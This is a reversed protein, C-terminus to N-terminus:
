SLRGLNKVPVKERSNLGKGKGKGKGYHPIIVPTPVVVVQWNTVVFVVFVPAMPGVIIVGGTLGILDGVLGYIIPAVAGAGITGTISGTQQAVAPVALGVLLVAIWLNPRVNAAM